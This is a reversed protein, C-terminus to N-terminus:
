YKEVIERISIINRNMVVADSINDVMEELLENCKLRGTEPMNKQAHIYKEPQKPYLYHTIIYIKEKARRHKKILRNAIPDVHRSGFERERVAKDIDDMLQQTGYERAAMLFDNETEFENKLRNLTQKKYLNYDMEAKQQKQLRSENESLKFYYSQRFRGKTILVLIVAVVIAGVVYTLQWWFGFSVPLFFVGISLIVAVLLHRGGAKERRKDTSERGPLSVLSGKVVKSPGSIYVRATGLFSFAAFFAYTAIILLLYFAMDFPTEIFHQIIKQFSFLLMM